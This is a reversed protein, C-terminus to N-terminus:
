KQTFDDYDKFEIFPGLICAVPFTVYGVLSVISPLGDISKLKQRETGDKRDGDRVIYGLSSIRQILPMMFTTADM